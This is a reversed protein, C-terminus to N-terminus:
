KTFCGKLSESILEVIMNVISTPEKKMGNKFWDSILYTIAGTYFKIILEFEDSPMKSEGYFKNIYFRLITDVVKIECENFKAMNSSNYIHYIAVKNHDAFDMSDIFRKSSIGDKNCETIIENILTDLIDDLLAYIDEYHYYFTNRNIGCTKVIETVTIKDFEKENLLKLFANKIEKKTFDAM